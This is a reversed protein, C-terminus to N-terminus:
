LGLRGLILGAPFPVDMLRQFVIYFVVPVGIGWRIATGWSSKGEFRLMFGMFLALGILMGCYPTVIVLVIAGLTVRAIRELGGHDEIFLQGRGGSTRDLLLGSVLIGGCIILFLGVWFSAFGPGPVGELYYSLGLSAVTIYLGLATVVASM